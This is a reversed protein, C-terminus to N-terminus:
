QKELEKKLQLEKEKEISCGCASFILSDLDYGTYGGSPGDCEIGTGERFLCTIPLRNNSCIGKIAPRSGVQVKEENLIFCGPATNNYLVMALAFGIFVPGM